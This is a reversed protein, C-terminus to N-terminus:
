IFTGLVHMSNITRKQFKLQLGFGAFESKVQFQSGQLVIMRLIKHQSANSTLWKIEMHLTESAVRMKFRLITILTVFAVLVREVKKFTKERDWLSFFHHSFLIQFHQLTLRKLRQLM